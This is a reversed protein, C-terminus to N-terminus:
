ADSQPECALFSDFEEETVCDNHDCVVDNAHSLGFADTVEFLSSDVCGTLQFWADSQPECGLFSDFEEETDRKVAFFFLTIQRLKQLIM